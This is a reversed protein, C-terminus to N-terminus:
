AQEDNDAGAEDEPIDPAPEYEIDALEVDAKEEDLEAAEDGDVSPADQADLEARLEEDKIAAESEREDLEDALAQDSEASPVAIVPERDAKEDGVANIFLRTLAQRHGQKKKYNKRKKLKFVVQKPGRTQDVITATVTTTAAEDAKATVNDGDVVCIAPLTVTDGPAGDLKEVFLETGPEVRYQKGGTKVIAYM